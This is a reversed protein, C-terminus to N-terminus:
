WSSGGGGGPTPTPDPTPGPGPPVPGPGPTDGDLFRVITEKANGTAGMFKERKLATLFIFIYHNKVSCVGHYQLM